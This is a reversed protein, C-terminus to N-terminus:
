VKKRREGKKQGGMAAEEEDEEGENGGGEGGVTSCPSISSVHVRCNEMKGNGTPAIVNKKPREVKLDVRGIRRVHFYRRRARWRSLAAAVMM